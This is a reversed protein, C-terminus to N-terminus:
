VLCVAVTISGLKQRNNEHEYGNRKSDNQVLQAVPFLVVFQAENKKQMTIKNETVLSSFWTKIINIEKKGHERLLIGRFKSM